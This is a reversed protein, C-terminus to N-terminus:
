SRCALSVKLVRWGWADLLGRFENRPNRIEVSSGKEGLGRGWRAGRANRHAGTVRLACRGGFSFVKMRECDLANKLSFEDGIRMVALLPLPANKRLRIREEAAHWRPEGPTEANVM